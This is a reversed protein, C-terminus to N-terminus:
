DRLLNPKIEIKLKAKSVYVLDHSPIEGDLGAEDATHTKIM